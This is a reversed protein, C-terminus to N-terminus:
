TGARVDTTRYTPGTTRWSSAGGGVELVEEEEEEVQDEEEQEAEAWGDEEVSVQGRPGQIEAETM